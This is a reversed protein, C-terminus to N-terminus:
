IKKRLLVRGERECIQIFLMKEQLCTPDANGNNPSLTKVGPCPLMRDRHATVMSVPHRWPFVQGRPWSSPLRLGRTRKGSAPLQPSQEPM